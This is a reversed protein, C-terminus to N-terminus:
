NTPQVEANDPQIVKPGFLRWHVSVSVGFAAGGPLRGKDLIEAQRWCDIQSMAAQEVKDPGGHKKLSGRIKSAYKIVGLPAQPEGHPHTVLLLTLLQAGKFGLGRLKLYDDRLLRPYEQRHADFTNMAKIELLAMPADGCLVAIDVRCWERGITYGRPSLESHLSFALRDRIPTEIKSTLGLYALEIEAFSRGVLPFVARFTRAGEFADAPANM